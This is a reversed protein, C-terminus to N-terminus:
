LASTIADVLIKEADALTTKLTCGAARIHGGGGLSKAIKSVDVGKSRMSVRCFNPAKESIMFAVDVTDIVRILDIFGETSDGGTSSLKQMSALDLFMGAVKGGHFFKLSNLADRMGYIEAASRKELEESIFNPSVGCTILESAIALTAARTNSFQFFGTDTALGAYLCTAIDPTIDADLERALKYVIECTAAADPEVCLEVDEGKNTVHHDVNLIPADTMKRVNGIRELSTDLILLLDADFTEGDVPRRIEEFHPLAHLNKRVTDDIFVQAEKGISRLIQMAALTSGIADGDPMIHATILIKNATKIKTVADKLTILM